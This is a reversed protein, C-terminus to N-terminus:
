LLQGAFTNNVVDVWTIASGNPSAFYANLVNGNSDTQPSIGYANQGNLVPVRGASYSSLDSAVNVWGMDGTSQTFFGGLMGSALPGATMITAAGSLVDSTTISTGLPPPTITTGIQTSASPNSTNLNYVLVENTQPEIVFLATGSSNTASAVSSTFGGVDLTQIAQSLDTTDILSISNTTLSSVILQNTVSNWHMKGPSAQVSIPSNSEEAGTNANYAHIVSATNDSVYVVGLTSNVALGLLIDSSGSGVTIPSIPSLAIGTTPNYDLVVITNSPSTGTGVIFIRTIGNGINFTALDQPLTPLIISSSSTIIPGGGIVSNSTLSILSLNNNQIDATVVLSNPNNVSLVFPAVLVNPVTNKSSCAAFLLLFFFFFFNKFHKTANM